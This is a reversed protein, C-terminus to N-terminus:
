KNEIDEWIKVADGDASSGVLYRKGDETVILIWPGTRPDLCTTVGGIGKAYFQGKLVSDMGAGNTKSMKPRENLLEVSEAESLDIEYTAYTHSATLVNDTLVLEVPQREEYIMWVGLLPMALLILATFLMIAKGATKALNFSINMGTRNNVILKKDDPNYYFMGWIWRDDEDVYFDRGSDRTLVEQIKRVRFEVGVVLVTLAGGLLLILAMNLWFYDITLWMVINLLAAFWATFLWNKGWNYRRIRTLAEAIEVNEDVTESRRRFMVRYGFLAFLVLAADILYVQWLRREFIMPILSVALPILFWVPSVWKMPNGALELNVITEQQEKKWGRRSKLERLAKNCLIFPIDLGIVVLDIWVLYVTMMVGFDKIIMCPFVAAFLVICFWKLQKQFRQLIEQVEADERAEHPLTVGVAINKKFKMENKQMYYMLPVIWIISLWLFLTMAM